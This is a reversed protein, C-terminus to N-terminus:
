RARQRERHLTYLGASVVVTSGAVTWWSPIEGLFLYGFLMAWLVVSYRFPATASVEGGRWAEILMAYGFLVLVAAAFLLGFAHASPWVWTEFLGLALGAGTVCFATLFTVISTPVSKDIFRTSIDRSTVVILSAFAALYWWSFADTGPQVILAVGLLGVCAATWRRWGVQEKLLIAAAATMTLPLLQLIATM